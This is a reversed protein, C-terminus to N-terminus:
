NYCKLDLKIYLLNQLDKKERDNSFIRRKLKNKDCM